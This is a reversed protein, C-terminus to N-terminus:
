SSNKTTKKPKADRKWTGCKNLIGHTDLISRITTRPIPKCPKLSESLSRYLAELDVPQYSLVHEYMRENQVIIDRVQAEQASTFATSTTGDRSMPVPTTLARRTSAGSHLTEKREEGISKSSNSPQQIRSQSQSQLSRSAATRLNEWMKVLIVVVTSRGMGETLGATTRLTDLQTATYHDFNPREPLEQLETISRCIHPGGLPPGGSTALSQEQQADLRELLSLPTHRPEPSPTFLISIAQSHPASGGDLQKEQKEQGKQQQVKKKENQHKDKNKSDRELVQEGGDNSRGRLHLSNGHDSEDYNENDERFKGTSWGEQQAQVGALSVYASTLLLQQSVDLLSEAMQSMIVDGGSSVHDVGEGEGAGVAAGFGAENVTGCHASLIELARTLATLRVRVGECVDGMASSSLGLPLIQTLSTGMKAALARWEATAAAMDQPSTELLQELRYFFPARESEAAPATTATSIGSFLFKDSHGGEDGDSDCGISEASRAIASTDPAGTLDIASARASSSPTSPPTFVEARTMDRESQSMSPLRRPAAEQSYSPLQAALRWLPPADKPGPSNMAVVTADTAAGNDSQSSVQPIYHPFLFELVKELPELEYLDKPLPMVSSSVASSSYGGAKRKKNKDRRRKANVQKIRRQLATKNQLARAYESEASDLKKRLDCLEQVDADVASRLFSRTDGAGSKNVGDGCGKEAEAGAQPGELFSLPSDSSDAKICCAEVHSERDCIDLKSIDRSCMPCKVEFISRQRSKKAGAVKKALNSKIKGKGGISTPRKSINVVQIDQFDEDDDM